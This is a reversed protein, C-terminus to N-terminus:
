HTVLSRETCHASKGKPLYSLTAGVDILIPIQTTNRVLETGADTGNGGKQLVFADPKVIYMGREDTELGWQPIANMPHIPTSAWTKDDFDVPPLGGLALYSEEQKGSGPVSGTRNGQNENRSLAISFVPDIAGSKWMTTFVPDYPKQNEESGDLSTLYPYGLGLLGSSQNDGRWYTYNVIALRQSHATIGGITVDELGYAGSVFTGDV